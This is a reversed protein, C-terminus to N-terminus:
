FRMQKDREAATGETEKETGFEFDQSEDWMFKLYETHVKDTDPVNQGSAHTKEILVFLKM